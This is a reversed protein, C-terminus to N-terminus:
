FSYRLQIRAFRAPQVEVLLRLNFSTGSVENDQLKYGSPASDLSLRFSSQPGCPSVNPIAFSERSAERRSKRSLIRPSLVALVLLALRFANLRAFFPM